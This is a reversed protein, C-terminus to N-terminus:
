VGASGKSTAAAKTGEYHRKIFANCILNVAAALTGFLISFILFGLRVDSDSARNWYGNAVLAVTLLFVGVLLCYLIRVPWCWWAFPRHMLLIKDLRTRTRNKGPSTSPTCVEAIAATIKTVVTTHLSELSTAPVKAVLGGSGASKQLTEALGM